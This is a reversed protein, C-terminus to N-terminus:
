HIIIIYKKIYILFKKCLFTELLINKTVHECKHDTERGSRTLWVYM